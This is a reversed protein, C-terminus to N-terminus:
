HDPMKGEKKKKMRPQSCSGVVATCLYLLFLCDIKWDQRSKM